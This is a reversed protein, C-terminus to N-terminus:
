KNMWEKDSSCNALKHIYQNLWGNAQEDIWKCTFIWKKMLKNMKTEMWEHMWGDKM